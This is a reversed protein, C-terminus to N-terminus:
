SIVLCIAMAICCTITSMLWFLTDKSEIASREKTGAQLLTDEEELPKEHSVNCCMGSCDRYKKLENEEYSHDESIIPAMIVKDGAMDIGFLLAIDEVPLTPGVGVVVQGSVFNSKLIIHHLPVSHFGPDVRQIQNYQKVRYLCM